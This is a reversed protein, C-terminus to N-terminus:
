PCIPTSAILLFSKKSMAKLENSMAELALRSGVALSGGGAFIGSKRVPM